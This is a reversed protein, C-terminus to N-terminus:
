IVELTSGVVGRGGLVAGSLDRSGWTVLGAARRQFLRAAKAKRMVAITKPYVLIPIGGTIM